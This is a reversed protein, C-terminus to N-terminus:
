SIFHPPLPWNAVHSNSLQASPEAERGDTM